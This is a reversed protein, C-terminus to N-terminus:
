KGSHEQSKKKEGAEFEARMKDFEARSVIKEFKQGNRETYLLVVNNTGSYRFTPFKPIEQPKLTQPLGPSRQGKFNLISPDLSNTGTPSPSGTNAFGPDRYSDPPEPVEGVQKPAQAGAQGVLAIATFAWVMLGRLIEGQKM